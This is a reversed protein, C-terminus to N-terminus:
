IYDGWYLGIKKSDCVEFTHGDFVRWSWKWPIHISSELLYWQFTNIVAGSGIWITVTVAIVINSTKVERTIFVEAQLRHLFTSFLGLVIVNSVIFFRVFTFSWILEHFVYWRRWFNSLNASIQLIYSLLMYPFLTLSTTQFNTIKHWKQLFFSSVISM